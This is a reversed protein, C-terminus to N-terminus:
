AASPLARSSSRLNQVNFSRGLSTFDDAKKRRILAYVNPFLDAFTAAEPKIPDNKCFFTSGFFRQKFAKREDLGMGSENMLYEYFRGAQVLEM